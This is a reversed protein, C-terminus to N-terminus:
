AKGDAMADLVLRLANEGVRFYHDERGAVCVTDNPSIVRSVSEVRSEGEM